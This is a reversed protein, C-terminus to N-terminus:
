ITVTDPIACLGTGVILKDPAVGAAVVSELLEVREDISLSNAESTTGFLVLGHCGDALLWRCHAALREPDPGLDSRMPTLVPAFVGSLRSNATM